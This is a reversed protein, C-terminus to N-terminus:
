GDIVAGAWVLANSKMKGATTRFDGRAPFPNMAM